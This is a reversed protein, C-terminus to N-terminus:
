SVNNPVVYHKKFFRYAAEGSSFSYVNIKRQSEFRRGIRRRKNKHAFPHATSENSDDHLNRDLNVDQDVDLINIINVNKILNPNEIYLGGLHSIPNIEENLHRCLRYEEERRASPLDISITFLVPSKLNKGGYFLRQSFSAISSEM